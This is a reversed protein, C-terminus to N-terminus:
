IFDAKKELRAENIYYTYKYVAHDKKYKEFKEKDNLIDKNEEPEEIDSATINSDSIRIIIKDNDNNIYASKFKNDDTLKCLTTVIKGKYDIITVYDDKNVLVYNNFIRYIEKYEEKSEYTKTNSKYTYFKKNTAFTISDKDTVINYLKLKEENNEATYIINFDKDYLKKVTPTLHPIGDPYDSEYFYVNDKSDGISGTVGAKVINGNTDVLSSYDGHACYLYDNGKVNSDIRIYDCMKNDITEKDAAFDYYSMKLKTTEMDDLFLGVPLNDKMVLNMIGYKKTTSLTNTIM